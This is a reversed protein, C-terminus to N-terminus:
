IGLRRALSALNDCVSPSTGVTACETNSHLGTVMLLTSPEQGISPMLRCSQFFTIYKHFESVMLETGVTLTTSSSLCLSLFVSFM